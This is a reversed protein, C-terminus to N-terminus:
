YIIEVAITDHSNFTYAETQILSKEEVRSILKRALTHHGASVPINIITDIDLGSFEIMSSYYGRGPIDVYLRDNCDAPAANKVHLKLYAKPQFSISANDRRINHWKVPQDVECAALHGQHDEANSDTTFSYILLLVVAAIWLLIYRKM